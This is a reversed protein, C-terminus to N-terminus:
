VILKYIEWNYESLYQWDWEGVANPLREPDRIHGLLLGKNKSLGWRNWPRLHNLCVEIISVNQSLHLWSWEGTANTLDWKDVVELHINKNKSLGLRNWALHKNEYVKSMDTFESISEWDNLEKDTHSLDYDLDRM